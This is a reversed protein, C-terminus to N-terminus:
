LNNSNKKKKEKRRLIALQQGKTIALLGGFALTLRVQEHCSEVRTLDLLLLGRRAMPLTFGTAEILTFSLRM